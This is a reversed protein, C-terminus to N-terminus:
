SEEQMGVFKPATRLDSLVFYFPYIVFDTRSVYSPGDFVFADKAAYIEIITPFINLVIEYPFFTVRHCVAM